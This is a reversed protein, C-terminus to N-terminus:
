AAKSPIYVKITMIKSLNQVVKIWWYEFASYNDSLLDDSNNIFM